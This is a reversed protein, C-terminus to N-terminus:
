VSPFRQHWTTASEYAHGTRCLLSESLPHGVLQLSLPMGDPSFGCPLSLTPYGCYDYPFTFRGSGMLWALPIGAVTRAASDEGGSAKGPDYVPAEAIASPCALVDFTQFARRLRGNFEARIACARAYEGGSTRTGTELLARFYVGYDKARSPYTREHAVVAEVATLVFWAGLVNSDMAPMQVPIVNAGLKELEVVAQRIAAAVHAPAGETAYADDFGLRLGKVGKGLDKLYDPASGSITTPDNTDEGAVASLMAAADAVRRTMPGVHDLSVALPLVGYRSVRGRTPKLGVIGNAASPLRISGGTDTGITGFSLGAATAVGPGSSSIGPTRNADWPNRPVKFDPHYGAMAGETLNLKGLLVAGASELRELVTADYEPVVSSLAKCGGKTVIGKTFLLDKVAVPVGHLPGRYHGSSIEAEAQRAAKLAREPLVLSYANLKGDLNEIRALQAKTTEVPSLERRRIREAIEMLSLYHLPRADHKTRQEAPRAIQPVAALSGLM